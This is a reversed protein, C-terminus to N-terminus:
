AGQRSVGAHHEHQVFDQLDRRLPRDTHPNVGRSLSYATLQFDDAVDFGAAVQRTGGGLKCFYRLLEAATTDVLDVPHRAIGPDVTKLHRSQRRRPGPCASPAVDFYKSM